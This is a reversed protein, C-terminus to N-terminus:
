WTIASHSHIYFEEQSPKWRKEKHPFLADFELFEQSDTDIPADVDSPHYLWKRGDLAGSNLEKVLLAAPFIDGEFCVNYKKCSKYGRAVYNDPNGFNIVVDYGMDRLTWVCHVSSYDFEIGQGIRIPGSGLVMIVPKGSRPFTRSECFSDCTSYFYPTEAAFEAGCTDVM